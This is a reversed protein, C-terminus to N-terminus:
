RVTEVAALARKLAQEFSPLGHRSKFVYLQEFADRELCLWATNPYYADMMERWIQIPMRYSAEKDWPIQAVQLVGAETQYFITGSFYIAVPVGGEQVAAFYKTVAVNFDFTCPVQLDVVISDSFSPVILSTHAWLLTRLTQGWRNPEGFLDSLGQKEGSSYARQSVELQVQCKLVITHITEPGNKSLRLKFIIHPAAAFKLACADEVLFQLDMNVELKEAEVNGSITWNGAM